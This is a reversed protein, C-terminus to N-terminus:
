LSDGLLYEILGQMMFSANSEGPHVRSMILVYKKRKYLPVSLRSDHDEFETVKILEYGKEDSTLRSTITLIPVDLGSLSKGIIGEKYIESTKQQLSVEKLFRFLKSVTYPYCYAFCVTDTKSKAEFTYKFKMSYYYQLFGEANQKRIINSRKYQIDEGAKFWLYDQSKKAIAIRMGHNYLSTEKTFNCVTFQVTKRNFSPPFTVSFYFWQHHGRTNTDVRMYLDYALDATKFAMDLNGSEFNSDFILENSLDTSPKMGTFARPEEHV